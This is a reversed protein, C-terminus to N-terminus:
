VARIPLSKIRWEITRPGFSSDTNVIRDTPLTTSNRTGAAYSKRVIEVYEVPSILTRLRRLPGLRKHIIIKSTVLKVLRIRAPDVIHKRENLM